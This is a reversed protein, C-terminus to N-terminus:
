YLLYIAIEGVRFALFSIDVRYKEKKLCINCFQIKNPKVCSANIFNICTMWCFFSLLELSEKAVALYNLYVLNVSLRFKLTHVDGILIFYM